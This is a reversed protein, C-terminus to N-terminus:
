RHFLGSLFRTTSEHWRVLEKWQKPGDGWWAFRGASLGTQLEVGCRVGDLGVINEARIPLSIGALQALFHQIHEASLSVQHIAISLDDAISSALRTQREGETPASGRKRTTMRVMWEAGAAPLPEFIGWHRWTDRAPLVWVRLRMKFGSPTPDLAEPHEFYWDRLVADRDETSTMVTESAVERSAVGM